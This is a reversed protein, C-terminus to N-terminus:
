RKSRYRNQRSHKDYGRRSRTAYHRSTTAGPKAVDGVIDPRGVGYEEREDNLRITSAAFSTVCEIGFACAPLFSCKQQLIRRKRAVATKNNVISHLDTRYRRLRVKDQPTLRVTGRLINHAFECLANILEADAYELINKRLKANHTRNLMQLCLVQRKVLRSM